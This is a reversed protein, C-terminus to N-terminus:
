RRRGGEKRRKKRSMQNEGKEVGREIGSGFSHPARV